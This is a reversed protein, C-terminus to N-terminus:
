VVSKRDLDVPIEVVPDDDSNRAYDLDSPHLENEILMRNIAAAFAEAEAQATEQGEAARRAADERSSQMKVLKRIVKERHDEQANDIARMLEAHFEMFANGHNMHKLHALEHAATRWVDAPTRPADVFVGDVTARMVLEIKGNYHCLGLFDAMGKQPMTAPVIERLPLDYRKAVARMVGCVETFFLLDDPHLNLM